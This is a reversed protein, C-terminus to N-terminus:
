TVGLEVRWWKERGVEWKLFFLREREPSATEFDATV